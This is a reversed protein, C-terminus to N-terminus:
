PHCLPSPSPPCRNLLFFLAAPCFLPHICQHISPSTRTNPSGVELLASQLRGLLQSFAAFNVEASDDTQMSNEGDTIWEKKKHYPKHKQRGWKKSFYIKTGEGQEGKAGAVHGGPVAQSSGTARSQEVLWSLMRPPPPPLPQSAVTGHVADKDLSVLLAAFESESLVGILM